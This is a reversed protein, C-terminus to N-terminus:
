KSIQARVKEARTGVQKVLQKLRDRTVGLTETWYRLEHEENINIRSRDQAGRKSPDDPMLAEQNTQIAEAHTRAGQKDTRVCV